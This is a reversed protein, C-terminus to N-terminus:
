SYDLPNRQPLALRGRDVTVDGPTAWREQIWPRSGIRGAAVDRVLWLAVEPAGTYGSDRVNSNARVSRHWLASTPRASGTELTCDARAAVGSGSGPAAACLPAPGEVGGLRRVRVLFGDIRGM